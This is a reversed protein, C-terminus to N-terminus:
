SAGKIVVFNIQHQNTAASSGRNTTRIYAIGTGVAYVNCEMIDGSMARYNLLIVDNPGIVSNTLTFDAKAGAALSADNTTIKGSFANITVNTLRNTGQVASAGSSYGIGLGSTTTNVIFGQAVL